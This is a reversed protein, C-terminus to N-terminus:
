ERGSRDGSGIFISANALWRRSYLWAYAFLFVAAWLKSLDELALRGNLEEPMFADILTMVFFLGGAMVLNLRLVLPQRHIRGLGFLFGLQLLGIGLLIFADQFDLRIGLMEHLQLREDAALYAFVAVQSVQFLSDKPHRELRGSSSLCVVFLLATSSLILVVLTTNIGFLGPLVPSCPQDAVIDSFYGRVAPDGGAFDMGLLVVSYVLLLICASSWIIKGFLDARRDCIAMSQALSVTEFCVPNAASILVQDSFCM